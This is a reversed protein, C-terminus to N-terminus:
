KQEKRVVLVSCHAHRVVSDSVSGMLVRSMTGLGRSGVVILSAGIEEALNTIESQPIGRRAHVQAVSGGTAEVKKVQENLLEQTKGELEAEEEQLYDGLDEQLYDGVYLGEAYSPHYPPVSAHVTHLESRTKIAIETAAQAALTAEESGDTALLIKQLSPAVQGNGEARVVLVSCYAHRVVANSVSGMLARRIGGLGRSGMVILGIGIEEALRVIGRDPKGVEFHSQTVIGGAAKVKEVQAELSRKAQRDLDHQSGVLGVQRVVISRGVLVVHLKSGTEDTLQVATQAALEAEESGDTALL